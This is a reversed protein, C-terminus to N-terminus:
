KIFKLAECNSALLGLEFALRYFLMLGEKCRDNFDYNMNKFYMDMDVHPFNKSCKVIIDDICDLGAALSNKFDNSIKRALATNGAAWKEDIVWLAYVFPLGTNKYWLEGLDHIYVDKRDLTSLAEDGIILAADCLELMNDLDPAMEVFANDFDFVKKLLIKLLVQSTGSASTLAIRKGNLENINKRTYLNVSSVKCVSSICVDPVILYRSFNRAFEISSVNSVKLTGAEMLRNLEAPKGKVLRYNNKNEEKHFSYYVPLCNVYEVFGIDIISSYITDMDNSYITDMNGSNIIDMNSM